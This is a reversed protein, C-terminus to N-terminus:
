SGYRPTDLTDTQVVIDSFSSSQEATATGSKLIELLALFHVIVEGKSQGSRIESFSTRSAKLIRHQLREVVEALTVTSEVEATPRFSQSPFSAVLTRATDTLQQLTLNGPAFGTVKPPSYQPPLLPVANWRKGLARAGRRILRYLQLRRELERIDEQEDETLELNPLLSRSKILLLTAAVWVFQATEAIPMGEPRQVYALYEDTVNALSIENIYLKREQILSLLLDFPGEFEGTRVQFSTTM